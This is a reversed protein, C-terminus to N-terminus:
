ANLSKSAIEFVDPSLDEHSVIKELCAKMKKQRDETYRKWARMPTLLRAAIQPNISNLELIADTLFTYGSGDVAHFGVPNNMAFAAYLSRVRNPNKINFDPHERLDKLNQIIDNRVAAAQLAFFKDVVLPYSRLVTM